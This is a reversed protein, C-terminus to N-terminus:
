NTLEGTTTKAKVWKIGKGMFNKYYNIAKKQKEKETPPRPFRFDQRIIDKLEYKKEMRPEKESGVNIEEYLANELVGGLFTVSADFQYAWWKGYTKKINTIKSPRKKLIKAQQYLHWM